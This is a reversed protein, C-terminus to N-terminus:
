RLTNSQLIFSIIGRFLKPCHRACLLYWIFNSMTTLTITILWENVFLLTILGSYKFDTSDDNERFISEATLM